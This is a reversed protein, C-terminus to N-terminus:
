MKRGTWLSLLGAILLPVGYACLSRQRVGSRHLGGYAVDDRIRASTLSKSAAMSRGGAASEGHVRCERHFRSVINAQDFRVSGQHRWNKTRHM